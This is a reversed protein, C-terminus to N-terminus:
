GGGPFVHFILGFQALNAEPRTIDARFNTLRGRFIATTGVAIQIPESRVAIRNAKYWSIMLELGTSQSADCGAAFALGSIQLQSIRDGFAYEYIVDACTHTFQFNGDLALALGTIVGQFQGFWDAGKISDVTLKMGAPAGPPVDVAYVQGPQNAFITPV